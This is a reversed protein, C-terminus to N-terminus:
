IISVTVVALLRLVSNQTIVHLTATIVNVENRLFVPRSLALTESLLAVQLALTTMGLEM